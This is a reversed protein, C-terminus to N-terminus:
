QFVSVFSVEHAKGPAALPLPLLAGGASLNQVTFRGVVDGRQLLTATARLGVRAAGRRETGGVTGTREM